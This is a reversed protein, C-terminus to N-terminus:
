FWNSTKENISFGKYGNKCMNVYEKTNEFPAGTFLEEFKIKPKKKNQELHDLYKLNVQTTYEIAILIQCTTKWSQISKQTMKKQTLIKCFEHLFYIEKYIIKQANEMHTRFLRNCDDKDQMLICIAKLYHPIFCDSIMNINEELQKEVDELKIDRDIIANWLYLGLSKNKNYFKILLNKCRLNIMYPNKIVQKNNFDAIINDKFIKFIDSANEENINEPLNLLWMGWREEIAHFLFPDKIQICKLDKNLMDCFKIFLGDKIKILELEKKTKEIKENEREDRLSFLKKIPNSILEKLSEPIKNENKKDMYFVITDFYLTTQSIKSNEYEFSLIFEGSGKQGKRAARGFAQKESRSSEPIFSLIVHLGANKEVDTSIKIDCGRGSLNTSLIIHGPEFIQSNIKKNEKSNLSDTYIHIKEKFDETLVNYNLETMFEKVQKITEFIVLVTREKYEKFSEILKKNRECTTNYLNIKPEVFQKPINNPIFVLDVKYIETIIDKSKKNEGLTGTLAYLCNEGNCNMYRTFHGINSYFNTTLNHETLELNEKIQLFQQLGDGLQRNSQTVGTSTYDVPCIRNFKICYDVNKELDYKAKILNNAWIKLNTNIYSILYEPLNLISINKNKILNSNTNEILQNVMEDREENFKHEYEKNSEEEESQIKQNQGTKKEFQIENTIQDKFNIYDVFGKSKSEKYQNEKAKRKKDQIERNKIYDERYKKIEKEKKIKFKGEIKAFEEWMQLFIFLLKDMGQMFDALFTSKSFDDIFLNDVEDV